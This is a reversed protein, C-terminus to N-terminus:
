REKAGVGSEGSTTTTTMMPTMITSSEQSEDHAIKNEGDGSDEIRRKEDDSEKEKRNLGRGKLPPNPIERCFNRKDKTCVFSM